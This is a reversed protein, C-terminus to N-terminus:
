VNGVCKRGIWFSEHVGWYVKLEHLFKLAGGLVIKWYTMMVNKLKM